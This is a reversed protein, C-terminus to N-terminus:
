EVLHRCVHNTKICTSEIGRRDFEDGEAEEELAVGVAVEEVLMEEALEVEVKEIL